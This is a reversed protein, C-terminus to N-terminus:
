KAAYPLRVPPPVFDIMGGDVGVRDGRQLSPAEDRASAAECAGTNAAKAENASSTGGGDAAVAASPAAPQSM